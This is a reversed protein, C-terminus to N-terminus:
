KLSHRRGLWATKGSTYYLIAIRCPGYQQGSRLGNQLDFPVAARAAKGIQRSSPNVECEPVGCWYLKRHCNWPCSLSRLPTRSELKPFSQFSQSNLSGMLLGCLRSTRSLECFRWCLGFFYWKPSRQCTVSHRCFSCAYVRTFTLLPNM